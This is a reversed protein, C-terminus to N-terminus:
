FLILCNKSTLFNCKKTTKNSSFFSITTKRARKDSSSAFFLWCIQLYNVRAIPVMSSFYQIKFDFCLIIHIQARTSSRFFLMKLLFNKRTKFKFNLYSKGSRRRRRKENNLFFWINQRKARFLSTPSKCFKMSFKLEVISNKECWLQSLVHM